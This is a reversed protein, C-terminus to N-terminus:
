HLRAEQRLAPARWSPVRDRATLTDQSLTPRPRPLPLAMASKRTISGTTDAPHRTEAAAIVSPQQADAGDSQGAISTSRDALFRFIMKAGAEARHGLVMAVQSGTSCAEPQRTCFGSLDSITASAAAAADTAGVKIADPQPKSPGTPLVILVIGMWFAARLLFMM